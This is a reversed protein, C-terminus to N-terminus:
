TAEERALLAMPFRATLVEMLGSLEPSDTLVNRWRGPPLEVNTNGWGGRFSGMLRPAVIIAGGGRMYALVHPAAAGAVTLPEYAGSKGFLVFHRQRFGLVKWILWLKALGSERRQWAEEASLGEAEALMQRRLAFDVARRNDPDALSLDWLESGQYLDPVGAATMKVLTQALSNM